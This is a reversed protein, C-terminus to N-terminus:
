HVSHLPGPRALARLSPKVIAAVATALAAALSRFGNTLARDHELRATTMLHLLDSGPHDPTHM